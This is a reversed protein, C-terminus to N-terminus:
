NESLSVMVAKNRSSYFIGEVQVQDNVSHGPNVVAEVFNQDPEFLTNQDFLVEKSVFAKQRMSSIFGKGSFFSNVDNILAGSIAQNFNIEANLSAKGKTTKIRKEEVGKGKLFGITSAEVPNLSDISDLSMGANIAQGAMALSKTKISNQDLFSNLDNMLALANIDSNNLDIELSLEPNAPTLDLTISNIDFGQKLGSELEEKTSNNEHSASGDVLLDNRLELITATTAMMHPTLEATINKAENGISKVVLNKNFNFYLEAIIEDTEETSLGLYAESLPEDFSYDKTLNLDSNKLSLNKDFSVIGKKAVSLNFLVNKTKEQIGQFVSSHDIGSALPIEAIYVLNKTISPDQPMRYSANINKIGQVQAVLANIKYIEAEDTEGTILIEPLVKEVRANIEGSAFLATEPIDLTEQGALNTEISARVDASSPEAQKEQPLSVLAFGITSLVMIIIIFWSILSKRQM